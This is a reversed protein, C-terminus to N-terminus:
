NENGKEKIDSAKFVKILGFSDNKNQSWRGKVCNCVGNKTKFKPLKETPQFWCYTEDRFRYHKGIEIKDLRM